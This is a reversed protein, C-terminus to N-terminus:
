VALTGMSSNVECGSWQEVAGSNENKAAEAFFSPIRVDQAGQLNRIAFKNGIVTQLISMLTSM